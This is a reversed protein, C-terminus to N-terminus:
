PGAALFMPGSGQVASGPVSFPAQLM